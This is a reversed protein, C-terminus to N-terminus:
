KVPFTVYGRAADWRIDDRLAGLKKAEEVTTAAKYAEYRAHCATGVKKPNVQSFACPGSLPAENSYRVKAPKVPAPTLASEDVILTAPDVAPLEPQAAAKAALAAEIAAQEQEKTMPQRKAPNRKSSSTSTTATTTSM